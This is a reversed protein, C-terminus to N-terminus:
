QGKPRWAEAAEEEEKALAAKRERELFRSRDETVVTADAKKQGLEHQATAEGARAEDTRHTAADVHKALAQEETEVRLEWAHGRQLDAVSLTGQELAAKEADRLKQAAEEAARKEAEARAKAQEATERARVAGALSSAAEDVRKDRLEVLRELPYKAKAM